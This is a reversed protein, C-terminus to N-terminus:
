QAVRLRDVNLSLLGAAVTRERVVFEAWSEIPEALSLGPFARKPLDHVKGKPTRGVVVLDCRAELVAVSIMNVTAKRAWPHDYRKVAM